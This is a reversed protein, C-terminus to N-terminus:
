QQGGGEKPRPNGSRATAAWNSSPPLGSVPAHTAQSQNHAQHKQKKPSPRNKNSDHKNHSHQSQNKGQGSNGKTINRKQRPKEWTGDDEAIESAAQDGSSIPGIDPKKEETGIKTGDNIGVRTSNDVDKVTEAKKPTSGPTLTHSTVSSSQSPQRKHKIPKLPIPALKMSSISSVRKELGGSASPGGPSVFEKAQPNLHMTKSAADLSAGPEKPTTTRPTPMESPPTAPTLIGQSGDNSNTDKATIFSAATQPASDGSHDAEHNAFASDAINIGLAQKRRSKSVRLSNGANARFNKIAPAESEEADEFSTIVLETVTAPADGAVSSTVGPLQSSGSGAEVQHPLPLSKKKKKKNKSKSKTKRDSDAIKNDTEKSGNDQSKSPPVTPLVNVTTPNALNMDLFDDLQHGAEQKTLVPQPPTNNHSPLANEYINVQEANGETYAQRYVGYKEPTAKEPSAKEPSPQASVVATKQASSNVNEKFARGGTKTPTTPLNVKITKGTSEVRQSPKAQDSPEDTLLEESAPKSQADAEASPTMQKRDAVQPTIFQELSAQRRGESRNFALSDHMARGYKTRYIPRTWIKCQLDPSYLENISAADTISCNDKQYRAIFGYSEQNQPIVVIAEVKGYSAMITALKGRIAEMDMQPIPKISVWVSREHNPCNPDGKSSSRSFARTRGEKTPSRRFVPGHLSDDANHVKEWGRSDGRSRRRGQAPNPADFTEHSAENRWQQRKNYSSSSAVSKPPSVSPPAQSNLTTPALPAVPATFQHVADQHAEANQALPEQAAASQRVAPDQAAPSSNHSTVRPQTSGSVVLPGQSTQTPQTPYEPISGLDNRRGPGAPEDPSVIPILGSPTQHVPQDTLWNQVTNQEWHWQLINKPYMSAPDQGQLQDQRHLQNQRHILAMKLLDVKHPEMGQMEKLDQEDFIALVHNWNKFFRLKQQNHAKSIWEDCWLGTVFALENHLNKLLQQNEHHLHTILNWLNLPGNQYIEVTDFYDYLDEWYAPKPMDKMVFWFKKRISNARTQIDAASWLTMERGLIVSDAALFRPPLQGNETSFVARVPKTPQYYFSRDLTDVFKRLSSDDVPEVMRYNSPIGSPYLFRQTDATQPEAPMDNVISHQQQQQYPMSSQEAHYSNFDPRRHFDQHRWSAGRLPRDYGSSQQRRNQYAGGGNRNPPPM